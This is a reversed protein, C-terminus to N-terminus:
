WKTSLCSDRRGYRRWYRSMLEDGLKETLFLFLGDAADNVERTMAVDKLTNKGM